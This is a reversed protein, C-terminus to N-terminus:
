NGFIMGEEAVRALLLLGSDAEGVFDGTGLFQLLHGSM